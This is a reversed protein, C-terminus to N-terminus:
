RCVRVGSVTADQGLPRAGVKRRPVENYRCARHASVKAAQEAAIGQLKVNKSCTADRILLETGSEYAVVGSEGNGSASSGDGEMTVKAGGRLVLGNARSGINGDLKCANLVVGRAGEVQIAGQPRDGSFNYGTATINNVQVGHASPTVLLRLGRLKGNSLTVGPRTMEVTDAGGGRVERGHLDVVQGPCSNLAARLNAVSHQEMLAALTFEADKRESLLKNLSVGEDVAVLRGRPDDADDDDAAVEYKVDKAVELVTGADMGVFPREQTSRVVVGSAALRGGDSAVVAHKGGAAVTGGRLSLVSGEGCVELSCAMDGRGAELTCERLELAGGGLVQAATGEHRVTCERMEAVSDPGRVTVGVKVNTVEGGDVRLVGGLDAMISAGSLRSQQLELRSGAGAVRLACAHQCVVGCNSLTARGGDEASLVCKVGAHARGTGQAAEVAINCGELTVIGGGTSAVVAIGRGSGPGGGRVVIEVDELRLGPATVMLLGSPKNRYEDAAAMDFEITGNRLTVGARDFRISCGDLSCVKKTSYGGDPPMEAGEPLETWRTKPTCRLKRVEVITEVMKTGGFLKKKGPTLRVESDYYEEEEVYHEEIVTVMRGPPLCVVAGGLDVVDRSPDLLAGQLAEATLRVPSGHADKLPEM